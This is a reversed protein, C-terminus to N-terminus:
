GEKLETKLRKGCCGPMDNMIFGIAKQAKSLFNHTSEVMHYRPHASWISAIREDLIAAEEASETRLPNQHNYGLHESPTRLHIVAHYRDYEAQLSSGSAKWFDNRDGPWYALGDLVGRDCLALPWAREDLVLNEIERQVHLIARQAARIATPSQLRWFGGGYVMSAVEPLIVVHECLQKRVIELIATKGAGPGGTVVVLRTDGHKEDCGCQEECVAPRTINLM